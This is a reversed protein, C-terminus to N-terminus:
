PTGRGALVAHVLPVLRARIASVSAEALYWARAAAGRRAAEAPDAAIMALAGALAAADGPPVIWGRGDGLLEPLDGVATGVVPVAMAMAELAKAPVQAEAVPGPRQPVPVADAAALLAPMEAQHVAGLSVFRPGLAARAADYWPGGRNGAAALTWAAAEPRALAEILTEWGKHPRPVGAFVAVPGAASLGFRARLAARDALEARGPDFAREDPGHRVITGGYRAQLRRSVVTVAVARRTLPHAARALLGHVDRARRLLARPGHGTDDVTRSAWEDDEVDLLVPRRGPAALAPALTTLLPKCAYLVDGTALRSLRAAAALVSPLRRGAPVVVYPFRGAFPAYVGRGGISIGLVQVDFDEALAAALPAARVIPNSALDHVLLSVRPRAPM